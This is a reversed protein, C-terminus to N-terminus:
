GAKRKLNDAVTSRPLGLSDAIETPSKGSAEMSRARALQGPTLATSARPQALERVRDMNANALIERVKTSAVAGAQIAEWERATLTSQKTQPDEDGIKIKKADTIQRARDLSQYEIRKRDDKDLEPNADVRAKALARGLSQARRELPANRLAIKLKADLSAVEKAYVQKAISSQKPGRIAVLERRAENALGKMANAHDAYVREMPTGRDPTVPDNKNGGSLLRRADDVFEMKSGSTTKPVEVFSVEGTRKNVVRKTMTEGTPVFVKKGTVPDIPPGGTSSNRAKQHPVTDRSSARSIITAAGANGKGQYTAKLEKIRNDKESQKYNLSHKEADIVVMSHKVARAIESPSAGKITMDTILNSIKGMETQTNQKTMKVMGPVERYQNKPDFNKLDELPRATKIKRNMNPIVVVTDGDFDAGSLQEAVSHHIGVADKAGGLIRKAMRNNNNVTLEPIEFPGGHPHRVLVVRDGNNYNPAYIEHPKISKIPLIVHNGQNEIKAAKLHVAAADASDAYEKLLKERVLPNTLSLIDQLDKERQQRAKNLQTHALTVSQKSLMQSSLTRSWADWDGEEYVMNLASTKKRGKSDTYTHQFTTAGFPNESDVTKKDASTKMAKMAGLKLDGAEKGDSIVKPDDRKKNTNFRVDVGAPLDDAYIAMGKLYHTGNIAVRVQAYKNAGLSIDEVGRRLEIVGDKEAGGEPGWKVEVRKLDLSVPQDKPSRVFTQGNDDSQSAVTRLRGEYVAAKAEAWPVGEKTLVKYTTMEGTGAQPLKVSYIQYGEDRLMALATNFKTPAVGMYLNTGKGVDLYPKTELHGKIAEATARLSGEKIQDTEKLWGRVTSERTGMIDAIAVNSLGQTAKLDQARAVNEQRIQETSIAIAARLDTTKFTERDGPQATKALHANILEAIDTDSLGQKKLDEYYAKFDKSRQFPNDGSGWPYRGSRRKIGIHELSNEETELDLMHVLVDEDEIPDEM